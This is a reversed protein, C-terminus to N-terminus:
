ACGRMTFRVPAFPALEISMSVIPFTSVSGLPILKMTM